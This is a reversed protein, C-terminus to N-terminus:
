REQNSGERLAAFVKAAYAARKSASTANYCGVAEWSHGYRRICQSLVWAGVCVNTCPDGLGNWVEERLVSQWASNIQMVGFDYTGNRNRNVASPDFNSEVKAISWLIQPHIGYMRGAEEFCFAFISRPLLLFLCFLLFLLRKV